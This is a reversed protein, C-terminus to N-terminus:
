VISNVDSLGYPQFQMVLFWMYMVAELAQTVWCLIALTKLYFMPLLWCVLFWLWCLVSAKYGVMPVKMWFGFQLCPSGVVLGFSVLQFGVFNVLARAQMGNLTQLQWCSGGLVYDLCYNFETWLKYLFGLKTFWQYFFLFALLTFIYIQSYSSIPASLFVIMLELSIFMSSLFCKIWSQSLPLLLYEWVGHHWLLFSCVCPYFRKCSELWTFFNLGSM